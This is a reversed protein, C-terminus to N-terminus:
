RGPHSRARIPWNGRLRRKGITQACYSARQLDVPEFGTVVIPVRFQRRSQDYEWYGMVACVHGAALFANVRNDPSKLIAHMAPPVLVNAPLISFNSIKNREAHLVSAAISPATTEFGIAFFVVQKQPTERALKVAALPSYVGRVDAGEARASFLNARAGPVRLMDGFSLIVDPQRAIQLANEISRARHRV